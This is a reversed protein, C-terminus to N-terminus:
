QSRARLMARVRRFAEDMPVLSSPDREYRDRVPLIQARLWAPDADAFPGPDDEDMDTAPKGDM